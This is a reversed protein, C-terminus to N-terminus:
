FSNLFGRVHYFSIISPDEAEDNTFHDEDNFFKTLISCPNLVAIKQVNNNNNNNNNNNCYQKNVQQTLL